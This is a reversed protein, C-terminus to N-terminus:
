YADSAMVPVHRSGTWFTSRDSAAAPKEATRRPSSSRATMATGEKPPRARHTTTQTYPLGRSRGLSVSPFVHMEQIRQAAIQGWDAWLAFLARTATAARAMLFAQASCLRLSSNQQIKAPQIDMYTWLKFLWDLSLRGTDVSIGYVCPAKGHRSLIAM